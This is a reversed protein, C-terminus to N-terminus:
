AETTSGHLQKFHEQVLEEVVPIFKDWDIHRITVGSLENYRINVSADGGNFMMLFAARIEVWYNYQQETSYPEILCDVPVNINLLLVNKSTSSSSPLNHKMM